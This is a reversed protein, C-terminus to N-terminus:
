YTFVFEGSSGEGEFYGDVDAYHVCLIRYTAGKEANKYVIDVGTTGRDYAEHGSCTAVTTWIGFLGKKQIRVDKVGIVSATGVAGTSIGIHMGDEDCGVSIICQALMTYPITGEPWEVDEVVTAELVEVDAAEADTMTGAEATLSYMGPSGALLVAATAMGLIRKVGQKMKRIRKEKTNKLSTM